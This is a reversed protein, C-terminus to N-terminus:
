HTLTCCNMYASSVFSVTGHWFKMPCVSLASLAQAHCDLGQHTLDIIARILVGVLNGPNDSEILFQAQAALRYFLERGEGTELNLTIGRKNRNYARWYISRNSDYRDEFFPALRRAPSGGPPEIKIVGPGPDGLIQGCFLGRETTLDLVRYPSLM